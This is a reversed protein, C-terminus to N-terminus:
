FLQLSTEFDNLKIIKIICNICYGSFENISLYYASINNNFYKILEFNNQCISVFNEFLM